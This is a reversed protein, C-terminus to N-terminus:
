AICYGDPMGLQTMKNLVACALTAEVKQSAMIRSRMSDGISAKYRSMAAEVLSRRTYGSEPEWRTRGGAEIARITANRQSAVVNAERKITADCRPPILIRPPPDSGRADIAEYVGATDYAGDAMVSALEHDVQMLLGPVEAADRARHSTLASALIDGTDADVVLHLKRWARRKPPPVSGPSSGSHVRLGTSDIVINLPRDKASVPVRVNLDKSRRSLTTHDPIRLDLDLLTSISQLFGETQRLELGYVLRVTLGAEIALDSYVPQGGPREGTPARWAAIAEESFWLTLDGRRRLGAEYEPWNRVRYRQETYKLQTRKSYRRGM